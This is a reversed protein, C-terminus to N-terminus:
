GPPDDPPDKPKGTQYNNITVNTAVPFYFNIVYNVTYVEEEETTSGKKITDTKGTNSM